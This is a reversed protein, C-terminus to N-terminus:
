KTHGERAQTGTALQDALPSDTNQVNSALGAGAPISTSAANNSTPAHGPLGRQALLDIARNIPIRVVGKRQDVWGYSNLLQDEAARMQQLDQVANDQLRPEPPLKPAVIDSGTPPSQNANERMEFYRFLNNLVFTSAVTLLILGVVFIGIARVNIGGHEHRHALGRDGAM